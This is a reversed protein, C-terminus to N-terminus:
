STKSKKPPSKVENVVTGSFLIDFVNGALVQREKMAQSPRFRLQAELLMSQPMARLIELCTRIEDPSRGTHEALRLLLVYVADFLQNYMARIRTATHPNRMTYLKYELILVIWEDDLAVQIILARVALRLAEGTQNLSLSSVAKGREAIIFEMMALFLDEKSTFHAYVSGKTRGARKAITELQAREYGENVITQRAARFLASRTIETKKELKNVLVGAVIDRRQPWGQWNSV